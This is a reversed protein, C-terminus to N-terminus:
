RNYLYFENLPQSWAVGPIQSLQVAVAAPSRGDPVEMIVCDVGMRPMPWSEIVKLGIQRAIRRASRLRAKESIASGYDSGYDSGAQLHEAGLRLMVMVRQRTQGLQASAVEHQEKASAPAHVFLGAVSAALMLLTRQLCRKM